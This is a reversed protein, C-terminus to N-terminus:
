GKGVNYGCVFCHDTKIISGETESAFKTSFILKNVTTDADEISAKWKMGCKCHIFINLRPTTFYDELYEEKEIPTM